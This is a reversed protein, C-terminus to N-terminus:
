YQQRLSATRAILSDFLDKEQPPSASEITGAGSSRRIELLIGMEIWTESAVEFRKVSEPFIAGGTAYLYGGAM